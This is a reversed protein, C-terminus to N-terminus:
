GYFSSPFQLDESDSVYVTMLHKRLLVAHEAAAATKEVTMRSFSRNFFCFRNDIGAHKADDQPVLYRFLRENNLM